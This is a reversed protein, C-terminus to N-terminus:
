WDGSAGGDWSSGGGRKKGRHRPSRLPVKTREGGLSNAIAQLGVVIEVPYQGEKFYPRVLQIIRGSDLDTLDGEVGRGVEIRMKREKMSLLFLVGNDKGKKGLKWDDTVKISFGEVTENDGLEDIVLLQIQKGNVKYFNALSASLSRKMQYSLVGAQDVVPGSLSPVDRAETLTSLLLFTIFLPLRFLNM